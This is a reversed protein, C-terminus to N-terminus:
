EGISLKDKNVQGDQDSYAFNGSGFRKICGVLLTPPSDPGM